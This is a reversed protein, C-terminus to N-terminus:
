ALCQRSPVNSTDSVRIMIGCIVFMNKFMDIGSTGTIIPKVLWELKRNEPFNPDAPPNDRHKNYSPHEPAFAGPLTVGRKKWINMPNVRVQLVMQVYKKTGSRDSLEYVEAYRPHAAYVFSPSFYTAEDADIHAGPTPLFGSTLITAALEHNIGHYAVHWGGYRRDFEAASDAVNISIRRWGTPCYMEGTYDLSHIATPRFGPARLGQGYM